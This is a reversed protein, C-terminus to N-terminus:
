PAWPPKQKDIFAKAGTKGEESVRSQAMIKSVSHKWDSFTSRREPWSLDLLLKKTTKLTEPGCQLVHDLIREVRSFLEKEGDVLENVLGIELAKQAKFTKGTLFLSRTHSLGMKAIAFPAIVAPVLGLKSELFGFTAHSEALVYDCALLLGVGAGMAAGHVAAILPIPLENLTSFLQTLTLTEDLNEEVSSELGKQLWVPDGGASFAMGNGKIFVARCNPKVASDKLVSILERILQDNLANRVSSRNLSVILVDKKEELQLTQYSAM